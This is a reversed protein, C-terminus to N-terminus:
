QLYNVRTNAPPNFKFRQTPIKKRQPNSFIFENYRKSKYNIRVERIFNASLDVYIKINSIDSDVRPTVVLQLKNKDQRSDQVRYDRQLQHPDKILTVIRSIESTTRNAISWVNATKEAPLYETISTRNYIYVRVIQGRHKIVWRFRGDPHFFGEGTTIRIKERITLVRQEFAVQLGKTVRLREGVKQLTPQTAGGLVPLALLLWCSALLIPM